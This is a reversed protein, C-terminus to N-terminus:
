LAHSNGNTLRAHALLASMPIWSSFRHLGYFIPEHFYPIRGLLDDVLWSIITRLWTDSTKALLLAQRLCTRCHCWGSSKKIAIAVINNGKDFYAHLCLTWINGEQAIPMPLPWSNPFCFKERERALCRSQLTVRRMSSGCERESIWPRM